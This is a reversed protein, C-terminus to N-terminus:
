SLRVGAGGDRVQGPDLFIVGGDELAQKIALLNRVQM